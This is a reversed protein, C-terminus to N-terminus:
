RINGVRRHHLRWNGGGKTFGSKNQFSGVKEEQKCTRSIDEGRKIKARERRGEGRPAIDGGEL